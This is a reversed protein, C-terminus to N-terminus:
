NHMKFAESKYIKNEQNKNEGHLKPDLTQWMFWANLAMHEKSGTSLRQNGEKGPQETDSISAPM